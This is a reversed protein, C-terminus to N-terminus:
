HQKQSAKYSLFRREFDLVRQRYHEATQQRMVNHHEDKVEADLLNAIKRASDMMIEFAHIPRKPGPLKMFMCIGPTSFEDMRDVDFVGPEVVNAASFLLGGKGSHQEYRHFINMDGFRFGCSLMVRLLDNGALEGQKAMVNIVLVEQLEPDIEVEAPKAEVARGGTKKALKAQQEARSAILLDDDSFLDSQTHADGEPTVLDDVYQQEPSTAAAPEHARPAAAASPQSARRPERREAVVEEESFTVEADDLASGFDGAEVGAEAGAAGGISRRVSLPIKRAGGNPLEGRYLEWEEECSGGIESPLELEGLKSKRMRRYGDALIGAIVVLGVLILVERLGFEM